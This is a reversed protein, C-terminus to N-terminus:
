NWGSTVFLRRSRKGCDFARGEVTSEREHFVIMLTHTLILGEEWSKYRVSYKILVVHFFSICYYEMINEACTYAIVVFARLFLDGSESGTEPDASEFGGMLM